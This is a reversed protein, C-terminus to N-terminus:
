QKYKEIEAQRILEHMQKEYKDHDPHNYEKRYVKVFNPDSKLKAIKEEATLKPEATSQPFPTGKRSSAYKLMYKKLNYNGALFGNLRSLEEKPLDSFYSNFIKEAKEPDKFDKALQAETKTVVNKYMEMQTEKSQVYYNTLEAFFKHAQRKTLGIKHAVNTLQDITSENFSDNKIEYDKLEKPRLKNYYDEWQEDPADDAPINIGEPADIQEKSEEIDDLEKSKNELEEKEKFDLIDEGLQETNLSSDNENNIDM